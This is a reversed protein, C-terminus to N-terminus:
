PEPHVFRIEGDTKRDPLVFVWLRRFSSGDLLDRLRQGFRDTWVMSPLLADIEVYAVLEKPCATRYDKAGVKKRVEALTPDDIWIGRTSATGIVEALDQDILRVLEFAVLGEGEIECLIDPEPPKRNQVSDPVVRLGAVRWFQDFVEREHKAKEAERSDSPRDSL